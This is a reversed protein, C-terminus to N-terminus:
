TNDRMQSIRNETAIREYFDMLWSVATVADYGQKVIDNHTDIRENIGCRRLSDVWVKTTLPLFTCVNSVKAEKTIKDSLLCPIGSAQAEIAALPLGEWLSPMIFIDAGQLVDCVDSRLGTFIVKDTLGKEKVIKEIEPQMEGKGVWLLKWKKEVAKLQEAIEIVGYPNKPETVRGIIVICKWDDPLNFEKRIKERAEHNYKYKESEIANNLLFFRDGKIVKDGFLWRGAETSCAFFYDANRRISYQLIKKVVAAVGSGNSTSHSHVIITRGERKAVRAIISATSRIHSHIVEYEPHKKFFVKWWRIYSCINLGNFHPAHYIVGGRQIVEDDFLGKEQTHVVFDFHVRKRDIHRYLNMLMSEAGGRNLIGFIQLVKIPESM